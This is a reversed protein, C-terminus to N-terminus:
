SHGTAPAVASPHGEPAGPKGTGPAGHHDHEEDHGAIFLATYAATLMAFVLAQVLSTFIGFAMMPLQIPIPVHTAQFIAIGVAVLNIIVQDEGFVNGFLRFMLSLPKAVFEAVMHMPVMMPALWLPEGCYHLLYAKLGMDRISIVHVSTVAVLALACTCHLNATPSCFGPVLGVLNMALIYIFFSGILPVFPKGKPGMMGCTFGELWEYVVEFVNQIGSPYISLTRTVRYALYGIGLALFWSVFIWEWERLGLRDTVLWQVLWPWRLHLEHALDHSGSAAHQAAASVAGEM